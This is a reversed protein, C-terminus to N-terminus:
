HMSSLSISPDPSSAPPRQPYASDDRAPRRFLMPALQSPTHGGRPPPVKVGTGAHALRCPPNSPGAGPLSRCNIPHVDSDDFPTPADCHVASQFSYPPHAAVHIRLSASWTAANRQLIRQSPISSLKNKAASIAIRCSPLRFPLFEPPFNQAVPVHRAAEAGERVRVRVSVPGFLVGGVGSEDRERWWGCRRGKWM